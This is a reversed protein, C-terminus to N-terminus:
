AAPDHNHHDEAEIIENLFNALSRLGDLTLTVIQGTEKIEIAFEIYRVEPGHDTQHVELPWPPPAHLHSGYKLPLNESSIESFIGMMESFESDSIEVESGRKKGLGDGPKRWKINAIMESFESDSM